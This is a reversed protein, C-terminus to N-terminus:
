CHKTKKTSVIHPNIETRCVRENVDFSTSNHQTLRGHNRYFTICPVNERHALFCLLHDAACRAVNHGNARHLITDNRVKVHRLRHQLIEDALRHTGLRENTRTHHDTHGRSDGLHLLTGDNISCLLRARALRIEDLLRHCCCDTRSKGDFFRRPAHDDIDAATRRLDGHDREAADNRAAGDADAAILHVGGDDLINLAHIVEHDALTRCLLDLDRDTRRNHRGIRITRHVDASAVEHATQRLRQRDMGLLDAFCEVLWDVLDDICHLVRKLLCRRFERRVDHIM